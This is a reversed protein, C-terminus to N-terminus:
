PTVGMCPAMGGWSGTSMQTAIAIMTRHMASEPKKAALSVAIVPAERARMCASSRLPSRRAASTLLSSRLRSRSIPVVSSPLVSTLMPEDAKMVLTSSTSTPACPATHAVAIMVTSSSTKASTKGLVTAMLLASRTESSVARMRAGNTAM